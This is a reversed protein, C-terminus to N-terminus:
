LLAKITKLIDASKKDLDVINKLIVAPSRLPAEEPTNPNKASLDFTNNDIDKLNIIWSNYSDKQINQVAVFEYL